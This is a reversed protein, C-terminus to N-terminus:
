VCSMCSSNVKCGETNQSTHRQRGDRSNNVQTTQQPTGHVLRMTHQYWHLRTHKCVQEVVITKKKRKSLVYYYQYLLNVAEKAYNRHGTAKFAILLFIWYRLIRDRDGEKMADHFGHWLQGLTIVTTAYLYVTDTSNPAKKDTMNPISVYKDVIVNALESTLQRYQSAQQFKGAYMIYAHLLLLKYDEAANMNKEPDAPVLTRNIANRLQYMTGKDKTSKTSYLRGMCGTYSLLTCPM